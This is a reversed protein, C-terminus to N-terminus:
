RSSSTALCKVISSFTSKGSKAVWGAQGALTRQDDRFRLLAAKRSSTSFQTVGDAKGIDIQLPGTRDLDNTKERLCM